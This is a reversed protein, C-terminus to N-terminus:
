MDVSYRSQYNLLFCLMSILFIISVVVIRTKANHQKEFLAQQLSQERKNTLQKGSHFAIPDKKRTYVIQDSYCEAYKEDSRHCVLEHGSLTFHPFAVEIGSWIGVM